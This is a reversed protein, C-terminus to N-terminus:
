EDAPAALRDVRNLEQAVAGSKAAPRISLPQRNVRSPIAFAPAVRHLALRVTCGLSREPAAVLDLELRHRWRLAAHNVLM